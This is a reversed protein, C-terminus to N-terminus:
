ATTKEGVLDVQRDLAGWLIKFMVDGTLEPNAPNYPTTHVRINYKSELSKDLRKLARTADQDNGIQVFQIGLLREPIQARHLWLAAEVIVSEVDDTPDGDTIVIINVPKVTSQTRLRQEVLPIYEDLVRKLRAGTPTAGDPYISNFLNVVENRTRINKRFTMNNIFFLDVGDDDFRHSSEAVSALADRAQNWRGETNMSDSDDVVLVVDMTPGANAPESPGAFFSYLFGSAQVLVEYQEVSAERGNNAVIAKSAGSAITGYRLQGEYFSRAFFTDQDNEKGCVISNAPPVGSEVFVWAYPVFSGPNVNPTLAAATLQKAQQIWDKRNVFKRGSPSSGVQPGLSSAPKSSAPSLLPSQATASFPKPSAIKPAPMTQITQKKLMTQLVFSLTDSTFTQHGFEVTTQVPIQYRHELADDLIKLAKTAAPDDGIQVFHIGLHNPNIRAAELRQAAAVIVSEVNDSPDGDTIVVISVPKSSRDRELKSIYFDLVKNLRAGTPTAGDPSDVYRFAELVSMENLISGQTYDNNLFFLDFGDADLDACTQTIGVLAERVERWRSGEMSDSDDVIFVIDVLDKPSSGATIQVPSSVVQTQVTQTTQSSAFTFQPFALSQVLVEYEKVQIEKGKCAVFARPGEPASVVRGVRVEYFSRCLFVSETESGLNVANPPLIGNNVFLWSIANPQFAGSQLNSTRETAQQIWQQKKTSGGYFSLRTTPTGVRGPTGARGEFCTSGMPTSPKLFPSTLWSNLSLIEIFMSGVSLPGFIGDGTPLPPSRTPSYPNTTQQTYGYQASGSVYGTNFGGTFQAM